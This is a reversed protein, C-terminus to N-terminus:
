GNNTVSVSSGEVPIVPASMASHGGNYTGIVESPTSRIEPEPEPALAPRVTVPAPSPTVTVVRTPAQSTVVTTQGSSTVVNNSNNISGYRSPSRGVSPNVTTVQSTTTSHVPASDTSFSEDINCGSLVLVGATLVVSALSLQKLM